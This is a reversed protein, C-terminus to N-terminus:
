HVSLGMFANATDQPDGSFDTPQWMSENAPDDEEDATRDVVPDLVDVEEVETSLEEERRTQSTTTPNRNLQLFPPKKRVRAWLSGSHATYSLFHASTPFQFARHGNCTQLNQDSSASIRKEEGMQYGQYNGRSHLTKNRPAITQDSSSTGNQHIQSGPLASPQSGQM